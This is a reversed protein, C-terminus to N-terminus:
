YTEVFVEFYGQPHVCTPCVKPAEEGEHIHGCNLCKWLVKEDKKFVRGEEINKALKNYRAEHRKEVESIREFTIAIAEFGEERAIKAFEPYLETWEENEGAAAAKLNKMTDEHFSVTYAANIEIMEDNVFDEKLYKYFKKAHEKEQEATEMFINSIQVYGQKKAISAYYTYRTRAQCEGAFSKMLNEATKTGKLTNM